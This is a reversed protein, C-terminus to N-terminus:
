KRRDMAKLAADAAMQVSRNPDSLGARILPIDSPAGPSILTLSSDLNQAQM